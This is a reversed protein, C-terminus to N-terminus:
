DLSENVDNQCHLKGECIVRAATSHHSAIVFTLHYFHLLIWNM